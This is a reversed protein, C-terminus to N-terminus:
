IRYSSKHENTNKSQNTVKMKKNGWEQRGYRKDKRRTKWLRIKREVETKEAWIKKQRKKGRASGKEM